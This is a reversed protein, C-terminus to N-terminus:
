RRRWVAGIILGVSGAVLLSRKPNQRIYDRITADLQKHDFHRVYEASQDLWEAAQKGYQSTASPAGPETTTEGLVEAFKHLSDALVSKVEALGNLQERGQDDATSGASIGDERDNTAM